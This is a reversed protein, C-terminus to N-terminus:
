ASRAVVAYPLVAQDLCICVHFGRGPEVRALILPDNFEEESPQIDLNSIVHPQIPPRLEEVNLNRRAASSSDSTMETSEEKNLHPTDHEKSRAQTPAEELDADSDFHDDLVKGMPVVRELEEREREQLEYAEFFSAAPTKCSAERRRANRTTM